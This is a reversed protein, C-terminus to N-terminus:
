VGSISSSSSKHPKLFKDGCPNFSGQFFNIMYTYGVFTGDDEMAIFDVSAGKYCGALFHLDETNETSPFVKENLEEIRSNLEYDDKTVQKFVIM